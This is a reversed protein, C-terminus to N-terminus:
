LRCVLNERSQLESTARGIEDIRLDIDVATREAHTGAHGVAVHGQPGPEEGADQDLAALLPLHDGHRLLGDHGAPLVGEDETDLVALRDLRADREAVAVAAEDLDGFPDLWPRHD